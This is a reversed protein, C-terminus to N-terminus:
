YLHGNADTRAHGQSGAGNTSKIRKPGSDEDHVSELDPACGQPGTHRRVPTVTLGVKTEATELRALPKCIHHKHIAGREMGKSQVNTSSHGVM